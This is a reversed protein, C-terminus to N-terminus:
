IDQVIYGYNNIKSIIIDSKQGLSIELKNKIVLINDKNTDIITYTTPGCSTTAAFTAGSDLIAKSTINWYSEFLKREEKKWGLNTIVRLAECFKPFDQNIIAPILKSIIQFSIMHIDDEYPPNLNTYFLNEKEGFLGLISDEKPICLIVQWNSPIDYHGILNAGNCTNNLIQVHNPIPSILVLGGNITAYQGVGTLSTSKFIKETTGTIKQLAKRVLTRSITGSGFGVHKPIDSKIFVNYKSLDISTANELAIENLYKTDKIFGEEKVTNSETVIVEISPNELALGIGGLKFGSIGTPDIVQIHLRAGSKLKISKKM